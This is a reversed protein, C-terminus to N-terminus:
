RPRERLRPRGCDVFVYVACKGDCKEFPGMAAPYPARMDQASGVTSRLSQARCPAIRKCNRARPGAGRSRIAILLLAGEKCPGARM